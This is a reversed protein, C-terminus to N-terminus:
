RMQGMRVTWSGTVSERRSSVFATMAATSTHLSAAALGRVRMVGMVVIRGGTVCSSAASAPDITVSFSTRQATAASTSTM